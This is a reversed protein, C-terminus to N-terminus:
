LFARLHEALIAYDIQERAPDDANADLWRVDIAHRDIAHEVL